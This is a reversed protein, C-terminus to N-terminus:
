FLLLKKALLILKNKIKFQISPFYIKKEVKRDANKDIKNYDSFDDLILTNSRQKIYSPKIGITHTASLDFGINESLPVNPVLCHM